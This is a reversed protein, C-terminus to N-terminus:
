KAIRGIEGARLGITYARYSPLKEWLIDDRLAIYEHPIYMPLGCADKHFMVMLKKVADQRTKVDTNFRATLWTEDWTPDSPKWLKRQAAWIDPGWFCDWLGMPDPYFLPNSWTRIMVEPDPVKNVDPVQVLESNVGIEKWMEMIAQLAIDNKVYYNARITIVIPTGDYGDEKVLQKAKEIDYKYLNVEPFYYDSGMEPYQMATPVVGKGNWIANNLAVRDIAYDLAQCLKPHAGMYENDMNVVMVHFLPYTANVLKVGGQSTIVVDQDTPIGIAMDIENNVIATVRTAVEPLYKYTVKQIPAKEGWYDDFRELVIEEKSKFSIVKYPGTGVPLKDAEDYGVKEVYAKSVIGGTIDSFFVEALPDERKLTIKVTYDDVVVCEDFTKFYAAYAKDFRAERVGDEAFLPNLSFAVDEATMESGDHFKVGKRLKFEWTLPDIQKWSEALGPKFVLKESHPDRLVLTDFINYSTQADANSTRMPEMGASFQNTGIRLHEIPQLGKQEPEKAENPEPTAPAAPKSGCGALSTMLIGTCVLLVLIKKMKSM